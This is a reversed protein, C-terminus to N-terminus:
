VKEEKELDMVKRLFESALIVCLNEGPNSYLDYYPLKAWIRPMTM